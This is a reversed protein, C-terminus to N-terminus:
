SIYIVIFSSLHYFICYYVKDKVVVIAVAKLHKLSQLEADKELYYQLQNKAALMTSQLKDEDSLQKIHEIEESTLLKFDNINNLLKNFIDKNM